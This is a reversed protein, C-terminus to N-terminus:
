GKDLAENLERGIRAMWGAVKADSVSYYRPTYPKIDVLPSGDVADLGRVKLTNGKHELLSVAAICISNPRAPSCTAYIGIEPLDKRGMPHVKILSRGEESTLHAWYIVLVHSFDEIGDLIGTYDDYIIIQSIEGQGKRVDPLAGRWNLDRSKVVLSPEKIKSRVIGVPKLKMEPIDKDKDM